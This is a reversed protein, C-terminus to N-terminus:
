SQGETQRFFKNEFYVNIYLNKIKHRQLKCSTSYKKEATARRTASVKPRGLTDLLRFRKRFSKDFTPRSIKIPRVCNPM